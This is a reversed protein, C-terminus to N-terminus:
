KNHPDIIQNYFLEETIDERRLGKEKLLKDGLKKGKAMLRNYADRVELENELEKAYKESLAVKIIEAESLLRYKRQFFTLVKELEPTKNLRVQPM